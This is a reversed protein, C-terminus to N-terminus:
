HFPWTCKLIQGSLFYIKCRSTVGPKWYYATIAHLMNKFLIYWAMGDFEDKSKNLNVMNVKLDHILTFRSVAVVPPHRM